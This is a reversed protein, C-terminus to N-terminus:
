RMGGKPQYAIERVGGGADDHDIPQKVEELALSRRGPSAADRVITSTVAAVLRPDLVGAVPSGPLGAGDPVGGSVGDLDPAVLGQDADAGASRDAALTEAEDVADAVDDDLADVEIVQVGTVDPTAIGDGQVAGVADPDVVVLERENAALEDHGAPAGTALNGDRVILKVSARGPRCGAVALM